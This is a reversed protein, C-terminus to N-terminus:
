GIGIPVLEQDQDQDVTAQIGLERVAMIEQFHDTGTGIGVEITAIMEILIIGISEEVIRDVTAESIIEETVKSMDVDVETKGLNDEMGATQDIAQGTGIRIIEKTIAEIKVKVGIKIYRPNSNDQGEM